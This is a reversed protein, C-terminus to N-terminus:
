ISEMSLMLKVGLPDAGLDEVAVGEAVGQLINMYDRTELQCLLKKQGRPGGRGGGRAGRGGRAM